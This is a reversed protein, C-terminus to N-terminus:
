RPRPTPFAERARARSRSGPDSASASAGRRTADNGGARTAPGVKAAGINSSVALIRALNLMGHPHTDHIVHRGVEWSGGECDFGDEPRVAREELAAAAVFAKYTSGPEFTDLAPRDRLADAAIGPAPANPNFRPSQALALLEGTRPDLVVLM